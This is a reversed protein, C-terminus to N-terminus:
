EPADSDANGHARRAKSNTNLKRGNLGDFGDPGRPVLGVTMGDFVEM